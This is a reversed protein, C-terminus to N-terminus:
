NTKIKLVSFKEENLFSDATYNKINFSILM